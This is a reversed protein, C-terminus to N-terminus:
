RSGESLCGCVVSAMDSIPSKVPAAVVAADAADLAEQVDSAFDISPGGPQVLVQVEALWHM